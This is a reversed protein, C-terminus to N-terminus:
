DSRWPHNVPLRDDIGWDEVIRGDRFRYIAFAIAEYRSGDGKRGEFSGTLTGKYRWRVCVKDAEGFMDEIVMTMDPMMSAMMTVLRIAGQHGSPWDPMSSVHLQFDETFLSHITSPDGARLLDPLQSVIAKNREIESGDSM